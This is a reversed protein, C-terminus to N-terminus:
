CHSIQSMHFLSNKLLIYLIFWYSFSCCDLLFYASIMFVSVSKVFCFCFPRKFIHFYVWIQKNCIFACESKLSIPIRVMLNAYHCHIVYINPLLTFQYSNKLLCNSLQYGFKLHWYGKERFEVKFFNNRM